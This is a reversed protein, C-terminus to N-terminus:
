EGWQQTIYGIFKYALKAATFAGATGGEAPCYEMLDFGVVHRARAIRRLIRLAEYWGIGGPEPTGVGQMIAPDLADLDFTVYVDQGLSAILRDLDAESLPIQEDYFTVVPPGSQLFEWEDVSMSRIGVQVLPCREVIRRATCAHNYRTEGYEDRLDAHADFQVVTLRPFHDAFAEVVGASLSHEGGLTVVLKDHELLDRVVDTVRRLMADPGSMVPALEPLTHIGADAIERRLEIDFLEMNCSADIIAQPGERTGTKYSTTSDYPVPLVVARAAEFGHEPGDLGCFTRRANFWDPEMRDPVARM